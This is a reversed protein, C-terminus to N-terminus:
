APSRPWIPMPTPPRFCSAPVIGLAAVEAALPKTHDVVHHAGLDRSWAQTRRGPHPRSSTLDTLRRALQTAISGVGGAGGVILLAGAAGPCPSASTSANSCPRGPRSPPSRGDRGGRGLVAFVAQCRRHTRRRPPVRCQHRFPRVCRRLLGCRGAPVIERRPRRGRRHRRRGLRAGDLGRPDPAARRRVKTDVPEGVRSQDCRPHRPPRSRSRCISIGSRPRMKSRCPHRSESPACRLDGQTQAPVCIVAVMEPRLFACVEGMTDLLIGYHRADAM